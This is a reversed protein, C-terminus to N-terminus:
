SGTNKTFDWMKQGASQTTGQPTQALYDYTIKGFALTFSCYPIGNTGASGGTQYHSIYVESLSLVLFNQQKGGAKRCTITGTQFHKGQTCFEMLSPSAKSMQAVCQIEHGKVRGTGAGSTQSGINPPNHAQWSWSVLEVEGSHDQDTSEGTVGDLKLFCDVGM